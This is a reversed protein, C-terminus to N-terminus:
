RMVNNNVEKNIEEIYDLIEKRGTRDESSSIFYPPLEEWQKKLEKLYANINM